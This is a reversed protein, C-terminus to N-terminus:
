IRMRTPSATRARALKGLAALAAGLSSTGAATASACAGLRNM